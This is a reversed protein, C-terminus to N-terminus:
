ELHAQIDQWAKVGDMVGFTRMDIVEVPIHFQAYYSQITPAMFRVQPAIWISSLKTQLGTDKVNGEKVFDVAGYALVLEYAKLYEDIKPLIDAIYGVVYKKNSAEGIKQCFMSSTAGGSCCIYILM